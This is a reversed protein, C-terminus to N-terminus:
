SFKQKIASFTLFDQNEIVIIKIQFSIDHHGLGNLNKHWRYKENINEYVDTSNRAFNECRLM